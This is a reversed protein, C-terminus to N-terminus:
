ADNVQECDQLMEYRLKTLRKTFVVHELKVHEHM